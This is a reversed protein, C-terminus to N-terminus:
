SSLFTTNILLVDHHSGCTKSVAKFFLPYEASPDFPRLSAYMHPKCM